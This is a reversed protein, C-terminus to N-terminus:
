IVSVGRRSLGKVVDLLRKVEPPALVATPEDLILIRVHRSMAKAIEVAQQFALPLDGVLAGPDIAFGLEELLACARARLQRANLLAPLEGLFINEAVTLEPALALEQYIIGIGLARSDHPSSITVRNGGIRIEGTTAQHPGALIKMLTSKGAGNEGLLAHVEGARVSFSVDDVARIGGFVKSIGVMEVGAGNQETPMM